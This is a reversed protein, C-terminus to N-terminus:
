YDFDTFTTETKTIELSFDNGAMRNIYFDEGNISVYFRGGDFNIKISEINEPLKTEKTEVNM